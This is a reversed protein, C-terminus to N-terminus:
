GDAQPARLVAEAPVTLGAASWRAGVLDRVVVPAGTDLAREGVGLVACAAALGARVGSDSDSDELVLAQAPEVGLEAAAKAYGEPDPKGAAVDEATVFVTPQPLGAAALRAGALERTGSTVVAWSERPLQAVLERAGPVPRVQDVDELELREISAVAEDRQGVPVLMAVTDAARRGHVMATVQEPDLGRTQAWRSWASRVSADSDVLVGDNDFLLGRVPLLLDGQRAGALHGEM